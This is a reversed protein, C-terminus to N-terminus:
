RSKAAGTPIKLQWLRTGDEIRHRLTIGHRALRLDPTDHYTSTFVRPPQLPGLDALRFGDDPHLKSERELHERM